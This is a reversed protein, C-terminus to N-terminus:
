VPPRSKNEDDLQTLNAVQERMVRRAYQSAPGVICKRTVARAVESRRILDALPPSVREYVRMLLRGVSSRSLVRDRFARLCVVDPAHESGCAATAIFCSGKRRPNTADVFPGYARELCALTDESPKPIRELFARVEPIRRKWQKGTRCVREMAWWGAPSSHRVLYELQEQFRALNFGDRCCEASQLRDFRQRAVALAVACGDDASDYQHLLDGSCIIDPEFLSIAFMERLVKQGIEGGVSSILWILGNIAFESFAAALRETEPICSLLKESNCLSVWALRYPVRSQLGGAKLPQLLKDRLTLLRSLTQLADFVAKREGKKELLWAIHGVLWGDDLHLANILMDTGRPDDWQALVDAAVHSALSIAAPNHHIYNGTLVSAAACGYQSGYAAFGARIQREKHASRKFSIFDYASFGAWVLHTAADWGYESAYPALGVQIGDRYTSPSGATVGAQAILEQAVGGRIRTNRDGPSNRSSRTGVNVGAQAITKQSTIHTYMARIERNGAAQDIMELALHDVDPSRDFAPAPIWQAGQCVCERIIEELWPHAFPAEISPWDGRCFGPSLRLGM